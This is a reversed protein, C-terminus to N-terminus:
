RQYTGVLQTEGVVHGKIAKLVDAIKDYRAGPGHNHIAIRMDYEAVLRELSALTEADPQPNATITRIGLKKAFEFVKRAGAEDSLLTALAAAGLSLGSQNLFSRRTLLQTM